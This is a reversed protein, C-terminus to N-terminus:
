RDLARAHLAADNLASRVATSHPLNPPADEEVAPGLDSTGLAEWVRGPTLGFGALLEAARSEEEDVLAALLDAPEVAEAGWRRAASSKGATARARARTATTMGRATGAASSALFAAETRSKLTLSM